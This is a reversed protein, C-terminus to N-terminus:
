GIVHGFSLTVQIVHDLCCFLFVAVISCIYSVLNLQSLKDEALHCPSPSFLLARLERQDLGPESFM